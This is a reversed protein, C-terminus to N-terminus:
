GGTADRVIQGSRLVDTLEATMAEVQEPRGHFAAPTNQFLSIGREPGTGAFVATQIANVDRNLTDSGPSVMGVSAQLLSVGPALSRVDRVKAVYRATQHSEFIGRLQAAIDDRGRMTSGDFGVVSADATFAGAFRNADRENWARLLETYAAVLAARDAAAATAAAISAPAPTPAPPRPHHPEYVGISGGGPLTLHTLSGWRQHSVPECVIGRAHMELVFRQVDPCLFYLEQRGGDEAPHIAIEAPPLGFILWGRGADVHPLRLVDRLFGRDADPNDSYLIVHTGDIM